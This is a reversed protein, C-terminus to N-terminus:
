PTLGMKQLADRLRVMGLPRNNRVVTVTKLNHNVMVEIAHTIEDGTKVSPSLPAGGKYPIIIEEVKRKKM